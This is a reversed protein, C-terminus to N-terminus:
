TIILTFYREFDLFRSCIEFYLGLLRSLTHTSLRKLEHGVRQSGISRLEGSEETLLVEWALFCYNTAMGEELPNEWVLSSGTGRRDGADAPLNKVM